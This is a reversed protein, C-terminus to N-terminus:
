DIEQLTSYSSRQKWQTDESLHQPRFGIKCWPKLVDWGIFEREKLAHEKLAYSCAFSSHLEPSSTTYNGMPRFCFAIIYMIKNASVAILKNFYYDAQRLRFYGPSWFIYKCKRKGKM